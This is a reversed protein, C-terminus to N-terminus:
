FLQECQHDGVALRVHAVDDDADVVGGLDYLDRSIPGAAAAGIGASRSAVWRARLRRRHQAVRPRSCDSTPPGLDIREWPHQCRRREAIAVPLRMEEGRRCRSTQAGLPHQVVEGLYPLAPAERYRVHRQGTGVPLVDGGIHQRHESAFGSILKGRFVAHVNGNQTPGERVSHDRIGRREQRRSLRDKPRRRRPSPGRHLRRPRDHCATSGARSCASTGTPCRRGCTPTHSAAWVRSAWIDEIM